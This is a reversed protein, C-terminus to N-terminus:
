GGTAAFTTPDEGVTIPPDPVTVSPAFQYADFSVQPFDEGASAVTDKMWTFYGDATLAKVVIQREEFYARTHQECPLFGRPNLWFLSMSLKAVGCQKVNLAEDFLSHDFDQWGKAVGERAARWLISIDDLKRKAKYAFAWSNQANAIPLGDFDDPVPSALHWADKIRTLIAQRGTVSNHRNFSAFFTFPDIETLPIEHEADDRDTLLIVTLGDAKLNGLLSLLDDQRNEFELVKHAIEAYLPIWTFRM